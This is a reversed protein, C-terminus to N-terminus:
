PVRPARKAEPVDALAEFPDPTPAISPRWAYGRAEALAAVLVKALFQNVGSAPIWNSGLRVEIQDPLIVLPLAQARGLRRM